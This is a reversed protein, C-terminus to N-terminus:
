LARDSIVSRFRPLYWVCLIIAALNAIIYLPWSLRALDDTFWWASFLRLMMEIARTLGFMGLSVVLFMFYGSRRKSVPGLYFVPIIAPWVLLLVKLVFLPWLAEGEAAFATSPIVLFWYSVARKM